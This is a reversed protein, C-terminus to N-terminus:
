RSKLKWAPNFVGPLSVHTTAGFVLHRQSAIYRLEATSRYWRQDSDRYVASVQVGHDSAFQPHKILKGSVAAMAWLLDWKAPAPWFPYDELWVLAFGGSKEAIRAETSGRARM